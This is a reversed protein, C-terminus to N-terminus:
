GSSGVLVHTVSLILSFGTAVLCYVAAQSIGVVILQLALDM